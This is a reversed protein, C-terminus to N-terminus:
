RTDSAVGAAHRNAHPAATDARDAIWEDLIDALRDQNALVSLQHDAGPIIRCRVLEAAGVAAIQRRIVHQYYDYSPDWESFVLLLDVPREALASLESLRKSRSAAQPAAPRSRRRFLQLLQARLRARGNLLRRWTNPHSRAMRLYHRLLTPVPPNILGLGDVRPDAVAARYSVLAGSCSGIAIFRTVGATAALFDMAERTDAIWGDERTRSGEGPASDGVGSLDFRLVPFGRNALGRALRVHLRNPGVRHILGANLIVVGTARGDDREPQTVIGVLSRGSGFRAGTEKVTAGSRAM